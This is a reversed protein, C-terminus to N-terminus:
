EDGQNNMKKGIALKEYCERHFGYVAKPSGKITADEVVIELFTGPTIDTCSFCVRPFDSETMRAGIYDALAQRLTISPFTGNMAEYYKWPLSALEELRKEHANIM